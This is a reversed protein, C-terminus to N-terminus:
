DKVQLKICGIYHIEKKYCCDILGFSRVVELLRSRTVNDVRSRGCEESDDILGQHVTQNLKLMGLTVDM